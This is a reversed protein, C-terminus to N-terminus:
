DGKREVVFKIDKGGDGVDNLGIKKMESGLFLM